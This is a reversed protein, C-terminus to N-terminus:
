RCSWIAKRSNPRASFHASILPNHINMTCRLVLPERELSLRSLVYTSPLLNKELHKAGAVSVGKDPPVEYYTVAPGALVRIHSCRVGNDNLLQVFRATEKEMENNCVNKPNYVEENLIDIAPLNYENM